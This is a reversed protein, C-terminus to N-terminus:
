HRARLFRGGALWYLTKVTENVAAYAMPQSRWWLRSFSPDLAGIIRLESKTAVSRWVMRARRAHFRSTLVLVRKGEPHAEAQFARAEEVTSIVSNGYLHIASAPVGRAILIAKDLDEEAPVPVGLREAEEQGWTKWTRAVWVEPAVGTKYLEAAAVPRAIDGGLVVLFDAPAPAETFDMWWSIGGAWLPFALLVCLGVVALPDRVRQWAARARSLQGREPTGPPLRLGRLPM